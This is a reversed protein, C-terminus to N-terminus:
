SGGTLKQPIGLGMAARVQFGKAIYQAAKKLNGQKMYAEGLLLYAGPNDPNVALSDEWIRIARDLNKEPERDILVYGLYNRSWIDKPDQAILRELTNQSREYYTEPTETSDKFYHHEIGYAKLYYGFALRYLILPDDPRYTLMQEYEAIKKEFLGYGEPHKKALKKTRQLAELAKELYPSRSYAIALLFQAEPNDPYAKAQAEAVELDNTISLDEQETGLVLPKVATSAPKEPAPETPPPAGWSVAGLALSGLLIGTALTQFLRGHPTEGRM